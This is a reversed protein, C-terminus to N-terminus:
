VKRDFLKQKEERKKSDEGYSGPTTTSTLLNLNFEVWELNQEILRANVQNRDGLKEMVGKFKERLEILEKKGDPIQEVVDSIPTDIKVGWNDLLKIRKDELEMVERVLKEEILTIDSIQELDDNLIAQTKTFSLKLLKELNDLEVLLLGKLEDKFTM